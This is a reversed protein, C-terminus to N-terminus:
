NNCSRSGRRKRKRPANDNHEKLLVRSSRGPELRSPPPGLGNHPVVEDRGGRDERGAQGRKPKPIKHVTWEHQNRNDNRAFSKGKGVARNCTLVRCYYEPKTAPIDQITATPEVASKVREVSEAPPIIRIAPVSAINRDCKGNRMCNECTTTGLIIRIDRSPPTLKHGPPSHTSHILYSIPSSLHSYSVPRVPVERCLIPVM